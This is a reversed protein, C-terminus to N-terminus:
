RPLPHEDLLEFLRQELPPRLQGNVRRLVKRRHRRRPELEGGEEIPGVGVVHQDGPRWRREGLQRGSRPKAGATRAPGGLDRRDARVKPRDLDAAVDVGPQAAQRLTGDICQDQGRGPELPEAQQALGMLQQGKGHHQRRGTLSREGDLRDLGALRGLQRGADVM